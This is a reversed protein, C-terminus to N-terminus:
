AKKRNPERLAEDALKLWKDIAGKTQTPDDSDLPLPLIPAPKAATATASSQRKPMKLIKSM